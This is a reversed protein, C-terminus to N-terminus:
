SSLQKFIIFVLRCAAYLLILTLAGQAFSVRPRRTM